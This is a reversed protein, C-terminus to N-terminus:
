FGLGNENIGYADLKRLLESKAAAAVRIVMGNHTLEQLPKPSWLFAGRQAIVRRNPEEITLLFPQDLPVVDGSPHYEHLRGAKYFAIGKEGSGGVGADFAERFDEISHIGHINTPQPFLWVYGDESDYNSCAFYLAVLPDKTVDLLRTAEGYHQAFSLWGAGQHSHGVLKEFYDDKPPSARFADIIDIEQETICSVVVDKGNGSKQMPTLLNLSSPNLSGEVYPRSFKPLCPNPYERPEGRFYWSTGKAYTEIIKFMTALNEVGQFGPIPNDLPALFNKHAAESGNQPDFSAPLM